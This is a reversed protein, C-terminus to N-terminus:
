FYRGSQYKNCSTPFFLIHHLYLFYLVSIWKHKTPSMNSLFTRVILKARVHYTSHISFLICINNEIFYLYENKNQAMWILFFPEWKGGRIHNTSPISFLICINKKTKYVKKFDHFLKIGYWQICFNTVRGNFLFYTNLARLKRVIYVFIFVIWWIKM